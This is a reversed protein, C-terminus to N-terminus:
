KKTVRIDIRRNQQKGADTDNSAVPYQEGYGEAKIRNSAVGLKILEEMVANARDSSLKLNSEPKGVNDTYGGLKIEVNPFAKMIEAVNKLQEQSSPILTAKGNEFLLRDFSFWLDKSVAKDSKIFEIIKSEVGDAKVGALEFGTSLKTDIKVAENTNLSNNESHGIPAETL